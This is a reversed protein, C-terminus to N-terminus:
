HRGSTSGTAKGHVYHTIELPNGDPDRFYISWAIRHDIPGRFRIGLKTLHKQFFEFGDRDTRWAVRHWGRHAEGTETATTEQRFLAIMSEGVGIMVPEPDWRHMERFGLIKEYWRISAELNSVFVEVHDLHVASFPM